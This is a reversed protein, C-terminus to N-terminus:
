YYSLYNGRWHNDGDGTPMTPLASSSAQMATICSSTRRAEGFQERPLQPLRTVNDARSPSPASVSVPDDDDDQNYQPQAPLLQRDIESTILEALGRYIIGRGREASPFARAMSPLAIRSQRSLDALLQMAELLPTQASTEVSAPPTARGHDEEDPMDLLERLIADGTKGRRVFYNLLVNARAKLDSPAHIRSIDKNSAYGKAVLGDMVRNFNSTLNLRESYYHFKQQVVSAPETENFWAYLFKPPSEQYAFKLAESESVSNVDTLDIFHLLDRADHRDFADIGLRVDCMKDGFAERCVTRFNELLRRKVELCVGGTETTKLTQDDTRIIMVAELHSEGYAITVEHDAEVRLLVENAYFHAAHPYEELTRLVVNHFVFRPLIAMNELQFILPELRVCNLKQTVHSRVRLECPIVFYDRHSLIYGTHELFSVLLRDEESMQRSLVSKRVYGENLIHKAVVANGLLQRLNQEPSSLDILIRCDSTATDALGEYWILGFNRLYTLMEKVTMSAQAALDSLEIEALTAIAKSVKLKGLKKRIETLSQVLKEPVNKVSKKMIEEILNGNEFAVVTYENKGLESNLELWQELQEVSSHKGKSHVALVLVHVQKEVLQRKELQSLIPVVLTPMRNIDADVTIVVQFDTNLLMRSSQNNWPLKVTQVFNIQEAAAQEREEAAERVSASDLQLTSGDVTEDCREVLYCYPPSHNVDVASQEDAHDSSVSHLSESWLNINDFPVILSPVSFASFSGETRSRVSGSGENDCRFRLTDELNKPTHIFPRTSLVFGDDTAESWIALKQLFDVKNRESFSENESIETPSMDYLRLGCFRREGLVKKNSPCNSKNNCINLRTIAMLTMSAELLLHLTFCMFVEVALFFPVLMGALWKESMQPVEAASANGAFNWCKHYLRAVGSLHGARSLNGAPEFTSIVISDEKTGETWKRSGLKQGVIELESVSSFALQKNFLLIGGGGSDINHSPLRIFLLTLIFFLVPFPREPTSWLWENGGAWEKSRSIDIFSTREDLWFGLNVMLTVAATGFQDQSSKGRSWEYFVERGTWAIEDIAQEEHLIHMLSSKMDSYNDSNELQWCFSYCACGEQVVTSELFKMVSFTEHGKLLNMLASAMNTWTDLLEKKVVTVLAAEVWVIVMAVQLLVEVTFLYLCFCSTVIGLLVGISIESYKRTVLMSSSSFGQSLTFQSANLIKRGGPSVWNTRREKNEISSSAQSDARSLLIMLLLLIGWTVCKEKSLKCNAMSLEAFTQSARVAYPIVLCSLEPM